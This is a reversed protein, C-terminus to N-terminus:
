YFSVYFSFNYSRFYMLSNMGLHNDLQCLMKPINEDLEAIENVVPEMNWIVVRGSDGGLIIFDFNM